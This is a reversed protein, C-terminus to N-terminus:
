KKKGRSSTTSPDEVVKEVQADAGDDEDGNDEDDADREPVDYTDRPQMKVVM